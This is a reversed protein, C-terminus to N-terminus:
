YKITEYFLLLLIIYTNKLNLTLATRSFESGMLNEHRNHRGTAFRARFLWKFKMYVRIWIPYINGYPLSPLNHYFYYEGLESMCSPSTRVCLLCYSVYMLIYIVCHYYYDDDYFMYIRVIHCATPLSRQRFSLLLM